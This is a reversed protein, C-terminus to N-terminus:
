PDDDDGPERTEEKTKLNHILLASTGVFYNHPGEVTFNYVRQPQRIRRVAKLEVHQGERSLLRDGPKLEGSSLFAPPV